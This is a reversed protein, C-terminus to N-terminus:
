VTVEAAYPTGALGSYKLFATVYMTMVVTYFDNATYPFSQGVQEIKYSLYNWIETTKATLYASILPKSHRWYYEAACIRLQSTNVDSM